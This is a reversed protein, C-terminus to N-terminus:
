QFLFMCNSYSAGGMLGVILMICIYIWTMTSYAAVGDRIFHLSAELAWFIVLVLQLLTPIWVRKIQVWTVSARSILVGTNYSINCFRVTSRAFSSADAPLGVSARDLFGTLIWYELFYVATLNIIIGGAMALAVKISSISLSSSVMSKAASSSSTAEEHDDVSSCSDAKNNIYSFLVWYIPITIIMGLMVYSYHVGAAVLVSYILPGVIGALGTGAGWAGILTAPLRHLRSINNVEGIAQAFGTLVTGILSLAFGFNPNTLIAAVALLGYSLTQCCLTFFIRQKFSFRFAVRSHLITMGFCGVLLVTTFLSMFNVKGYRFALDAAVANVLTYGNNNIIGLLCSSIYIRIYTSRSMGGGLSSELRKPSTIAM